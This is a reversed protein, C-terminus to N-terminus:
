QVTLRRARMEGIRLGLNLGAAVAASIAARAAVSRTRENAMLEVAVEIFNQTVRALTPDTATAAAFADTNSIMGAENVIEAEAAAIEAATPITM